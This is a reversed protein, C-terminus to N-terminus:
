TEERTAPTGQEIACAFSGIVRAAFVIGDRRTAYDPAIRKLHTEADRLAGVAADRERTTLLAVFLGIIDPHVDLPRGCLSMSDFLAKVAAEREAAKPDTM